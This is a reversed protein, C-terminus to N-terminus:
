AKGEERVAESEKSDNAKNGTKDRTNDARSAEYSRIYPKLENRVSEVLERICSPCSSRDVRRGASRDCYFWFRASQAETMQGRTIAAECITWLEFMEDHTLKVTGARSDVADWKNMPCNWIPSMAKIPMVCGCLKVRKKGKEERMKKGIGLPGCSLTSAVYYQCGHCVKLRGNYQDKTCLLKM